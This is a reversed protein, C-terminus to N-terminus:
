SKVSISLPTEASVGRSNKVHERSAAAVESEAISSVRASWIM